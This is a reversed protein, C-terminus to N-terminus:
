GGQSATWYVKTPTNTSVNNQAGTVYWRAQDGQRILTVYVIKYGVQFTGIELRGNVMGSGVISDTVNLIAATAVTDGLQKATASARGLGYAGYVRDSQALNYAVSSQYSVQRAQLQGGDTAWGPAEYKVFLQANNGALYPYVYRLASVPSNGTDAMIYEAAVQYAGLLQQPTVNKMWPNAQLADKMLPISLGTIAGNQPTGAPLKVGAASLSVPVKPGPYKKLSSASNLMQPTLTGAEPGTAAIGPVEQAIKADGWAIYRDNILTADLFINGKPAVWFNPVGHSSGLTQVHPATTKPATKAKPAVSHHPAVHHRVPEKTKRTKAAAVQVQPHPPQLASYGLYGGGGLVTAALLGLMIAGGPGTELLRVKLRDGPKDYDLPGTGLWREFM